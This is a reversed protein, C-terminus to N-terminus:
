ENATNDRSEAQKLIKMLLLACYYSPPIVTCLHIFITPQIKDIIPRAQTTFCMM